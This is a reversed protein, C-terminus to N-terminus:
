LAKWRGVRWAYIADTLSAYRSSAYQALFRDIEVAMPVLQAPDVQRFVLIGPHSPPPQVAWEVALRRWARHLLLFDRENHSVLVRGQRVATVLVEDDSAGPTGVRGTLGAQRATLVDHGLSVLHHALLGPVDADILLSGV